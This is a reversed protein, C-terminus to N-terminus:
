RRALLDRAAAPSLIRFSVRDALGLLDRDGSGLLDAGGGAALALFARDHPDRCGPVEAAGVVSADITEVYPLYESLLTDVEGPELQFKPYALARILEEVTPRSVLPTVSGDIWARRLWGLRGARFVLASVVVNTDLVARV